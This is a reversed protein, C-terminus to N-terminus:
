SLLVVEHVAGRPCRVSCRWSHHWSGFGHGAAGQRLRSWDTSGVIAVGMTVM